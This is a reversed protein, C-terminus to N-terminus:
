INKLFNLIDFNFDTGVVGVVNVPAFLSAASSFYLASGGPSDDVKGFRNEITDFAVSGVVLISM